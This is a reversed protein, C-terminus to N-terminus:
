FKFEAKIKFTEVAPLALVAEIGRRKKLNEIFSNIEKKTKASFTFWLNYEAKRLYNHTVNEFSNIFLATEQVAEPKVRVAILLSKYDLHAASAVAGIRRIVKKRKFEQIKSLLQHQSIGFREALVQYPNEVIPFDSQLVNLIKKEKQNM